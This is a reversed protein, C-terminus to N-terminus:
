SSKPLRLTMALRVSPTLVAEPPRLRVALVEQNPLEADTVYNVRVPPPEDEGSEDQSESPTRITEQGTIASLDEVSGDLFGVMAAAVEKQIDQLPASADLDRQIAWLRHAARGAFLRCPLAAEARAEAAASPDEYVDPEHVSPAQAVRVRGPEEGPALVVFGARALESQMSGSFSAALPSARSGEAGGTGVQISSETVHTPWGTEVFSQAAAAGVVLAGSGYLGEDEEVGLSSEVDAAGYPARLVVSPLALGLFSSAEEQRLRKWEVYEDGQLLPRLAPLQQLGRLHEIGFFEADVSAVVPAQLSEGTGALDALQEVDAHTRGFAQDVM